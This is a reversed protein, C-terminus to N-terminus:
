LMEGSFASEIYAYLELQPEAMVLAVDFRMDLNVLEPFLSLYSLASVCIKQQKSKTIALVGNHDWNGGSRTKVEVFILWQRDCAIIDIEGWICHWQHELIQWGQTQLFEIVFQEGQSGLINRDM